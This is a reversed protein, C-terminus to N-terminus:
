CHLGFFISPLHIHYPTVVGLFFTATANTKRRTKDGMLRFRRLTKRMNQLHHTSSPHRTCCREPESNDNTEVCIDHQAPVRTRGSSITKISLQFMKGLNVFGTGRDGRYLHHRKYRSWCNWDGQRQVLISHTPEARPATFNKGPTKMSEHHTYVADFLILSTTIM